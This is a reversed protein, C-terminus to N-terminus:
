SGLPRRAGSTRLADRTVALFGDAIEAYGRASPHFRDAAFFVRPEDAMADAPLPVCFAGNAAACARLARDMRQARLGLAARLPQPLAPFRGVPPLGCFVLPPATGLRDRVTAILVELDRRWNRLGRYRLLDNIGVVVIVLDPSAVPGKALKRATSEATAGGRAVVQWSVSRGTEAAWRDALRGALGASHHPVGVGAAMSDGVVLLRM